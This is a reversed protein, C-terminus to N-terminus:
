RPKILAALYGLVIFLPTLIWLLLAQSFGNHKAIYKRLSQRICRQKKITAVKNFTHGKHHEIQLDAYHRVKWGADVAMKCYDVEEFWIFYREDLYGIENILDRRIFMFAGMISDVDQTQYPNKDHMMYHDIANIKKIFHPLKLMILIQDSLTPFRRISDQLTGDPYRIVCSAIGVQSDEDLHTIMKAFVYSSFSTDPNLLLVYRGQSIKMGRNVGAAFGENKENRLYKSGEYSLLLGRTAESAGNDVVILEFRINESEYVSDFCKKLLDLNENYTVVVVSIDLSM